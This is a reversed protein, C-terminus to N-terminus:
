ITIDNGIIVIRSSLYINQLTCPFSLSKLSSSSKKGELGFHCLQEDNVVESVENGSFIPM